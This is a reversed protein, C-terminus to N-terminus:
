EIRKDAKTVVEYVNQNYENVLKNGRLTYTTKENKESEVESESYKGTLIVQSGNFDYTGSYVMEWWFIQKFTGDAKLTLESRGDGDSDIDHGWKGAVTNPKFSSMRLWGTTKRLRENTFTGYGFGNETKLIEIVDGAAIYKQTATEDNASDYFYARDTVVYWSNSPNAAVTYSVTAAASTEGHNRNDGGSSAAAPEADAPKHQEGSKSFMNIGFVLALVIVVAGAAILIYKGALSPPQSTSVPRAGDRGTPLPQVPETRANDTQPNAPIDTGV